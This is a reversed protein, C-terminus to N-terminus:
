EASDLTESFGQGYQLRHDRVAKTYFQQHAISQHNRLGNSLIESEIMDIIRINLQDREKMAKQGVKTPSVATM